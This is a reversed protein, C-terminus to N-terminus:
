RLFEPIYIGEPAMDMIMGEIAVEFEDDSSAKPDASAPNYDYYDDPNYDRKRRCNICKRRM